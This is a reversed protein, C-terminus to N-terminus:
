YLDRLKGTTDAVWPEQILHEHIQERIRELEGAVRFIGENLDAAFLSVPFIDVEDAVVADTKLHLIRFLQETYELPQVGLFLKLAMADAQGDHLPDDLPM